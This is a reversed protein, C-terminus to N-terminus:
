NLVDRDMVPLAVGDQSADLEDAQTNAAALAEQIRTIADHLAARETEDLNGQTKEHLMLLLSLSREATRRAHVGDRELHRGMPSHSEGTVAQASSLLSQVLGIFVPNAM